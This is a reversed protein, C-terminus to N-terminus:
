ELMQRYDRPSQGTWRRFARNFHPYQSYGLISAIDGLSHNPEAMLDLAAEVRVRDVLERWSTGESALYRRLSRESIELIEAGLEMSLDGERVLSTLVQHLSGKLDGAPREIAGNRDSESSRTRPGGLPLRLSHAPLEMATRSAGFEIHADGLIAPRKSTWHAAPTQMEVRSPLWDSGVAMRVIQIFFSIPYQDGVWYGQWDRRSPVHDRWVWHRDGRRELGIRVNPMDAGIWQSMVEIAHQLTLSDAVRPGWRSARQVTVKEAVRFGLDWLGESRAADDVFAWVSRVPVFGSDSETGSTPLRHDRLLRTSPAGIEDLISIAPVLTSRHILPIPQM